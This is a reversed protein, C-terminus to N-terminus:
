TWPAATAQPTPNCNARAKRAARRIKVAQLRQQEYTKTERPSLEAGPLDTKLLPRKANGCRHDYGGSPLMPKQSAVTPRTMLTFM